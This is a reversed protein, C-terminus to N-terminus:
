INHSNTLLKSTTHLRTIKIHDDHDSRKASEDPNSDYRRVVVSKDTKEIKHQKM